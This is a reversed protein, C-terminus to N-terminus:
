ASASAQANGIMPSTLVLILGRPSGPSGGSGAATGGPHLKWGLHATACGWHEVLSM